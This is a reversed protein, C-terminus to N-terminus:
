LLTEWRAVLLRRTACDQRYMNRIGSLRCPDDVETIYAVGTGSFISDLRARPMEEVLVDGTEGEEELAEARTPMWSLLSDEKHLATSPYRGHALYHKHIRRAWSQASARATFVPLVSRSSAVGTQHLLLWGNSSADRLVFVRSM